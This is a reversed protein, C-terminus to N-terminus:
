KNGGKEEKLIWPNDKKKTKGPKEKVAKQNLMNRYDALTAM